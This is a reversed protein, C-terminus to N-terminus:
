DILPLSQGLFVSSKSQTSPERQKSSKETHDQYTFPRNLDGSAIYLLSYKFNEICNEYDLGFANALQLNIECAKELNNLLEQSLIENLSTTEHKLYAISYRDIYGIANEITSRVKLAKDLNTISM